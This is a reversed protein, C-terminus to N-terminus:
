RQYLKALEGATQFNVFGSQFPDHGTAEELEHVLSALDLSDIGVEGGLLKTQASIQPAKLGKSSAITGLLNEILRLVEEQNM